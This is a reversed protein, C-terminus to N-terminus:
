VSIASGTQGSSGPGAGSLATLEAYLGPAIRIGDKATRLRAAYRRESPLRAGQDTVATLLAEAREIHSPGEGAAFSAPDFAIILEGHRPTLGMHKSAARAESSTLDGILAGALLEIMISLASGKHGGFPLMAGALAETADTTPLGAEDIAWGDTIPLGARKHLEIEGRAIVSTAFDFVFPKAGDERPWGFAIPNTGLLPKTGGAPAVCSYNPCMALAAFGEKTITEVEPWLASFHFCNNIALAALGNQRVKEFLLPLGSEFALPSMGNDADVKVISPGRESVRPVALPNAQGETATRSCGLLRYLGHSHCEDREAAMIVRTIASANASSYGSAALVANSLDIAEDISISIQDNMATSDEDM